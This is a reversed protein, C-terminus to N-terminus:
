QTQSLDLHTEIRTVRKNLNTQERDTRQIFVSLTKRIYSLDRKAPKLKLDLKEELKKDIVNGIQNLDNQTLM